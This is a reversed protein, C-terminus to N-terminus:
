NLYVTQSIKPSSFFIDRSDGPDDGKFMESDRQVRSACPKELLIFIFMLQILSCILSFYVNARSPLMYKGTLPWSGVANTILTTCGNRSPSTRPVQFNNRRSTCFIRTTTESPDRFFGSKETHSWFLNQLLAPLIWALFGGSQM